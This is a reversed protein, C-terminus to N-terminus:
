PMWLSRCSIKVLCRRHRLIIPTVVSGIIWSVQPLNGAAVDALFDHSVTASLMQHLVSAPNQFNKFYSLVNDSLIGGLVNEDPSSYVKLFVRTQLQEPMTTYTLRGNFVLSKCHPRCFLGGNQGDPDISAAMTNSVTRIPPAWRPVSITTASRSRM